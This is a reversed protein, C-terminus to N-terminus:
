FRICVKERVELLLFESWEVPAHPAVVLCRPVLSCHTSDLTLDSADTWRPYLKFFSIACSLICHRFQLDAAPMLTKSVQSISM